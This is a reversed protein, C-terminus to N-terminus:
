GGDEAYCIVPFFAGELVFDLLAFVEGVCTEGRAHRM